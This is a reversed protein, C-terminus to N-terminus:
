THEHSDSPATKYFHYLTYYPVKNSKALYALQADAEYPAVIYRVGDARLRQIVQLPEIAGGGDHVGGDAKNHLGLDMM